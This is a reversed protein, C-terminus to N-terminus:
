GISPLADLRGVRRDIHHGPDDLRPSSVADGGGARNSANPRETDDDLGALPQPPSSGARNSITSLISACSANTQRHIQRSVM